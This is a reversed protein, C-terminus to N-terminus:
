QLVSGTATPELKHRADTYCSFTNAPSDTGIKSFCLLDILVYELYNKKVTFPKLALSTGSIRIDLYSSHDKDM